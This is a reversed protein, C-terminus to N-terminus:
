AKGERRKAERQERMQQVFQLVDFSKATRAPYCSDVADIENDFIRFITSLKTVVMLELGRENLGFIPLHGGAKAFRTYSTVLCGLASSDIYEVERFDLVLNEGRSALSEEVATRFAEVAEGAVFRGSAALIPVNDRERYQITFSM